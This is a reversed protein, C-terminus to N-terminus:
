IWHFPGKDPLSISPYSMHGDMEDDDADDDDDDDDDTAVVETPVLAMLLELVKPLLRLM